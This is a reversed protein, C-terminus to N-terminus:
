QVAEFQGRAELEVRLHTEGDNRWYWGHTGEFPAVITGEMVATTAIVYSEYYGSEDGAPEGHVDTYVADDAKWQYNIKAGSKARVKYEIGDGAPVVLETRLVTEEAFVEVQTGNPNALRTLGLKQGVGTPDINFEAPFIVLLCLLSGLAIAIATALLLKGSSLEHDVSTAEIM